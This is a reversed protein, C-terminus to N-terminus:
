LPERPRRTGALHDSEPVPTPAIPQDFRRFCLMLVWQPRISAANKGVATLEEAECALTTSPGTM